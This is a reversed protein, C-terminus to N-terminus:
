GTENGKQVSWWKLSPDGARPLLVVAARADTVATGAKLKRGVDNLAVTWTTEGHGLQIITPGAGICVHSAM